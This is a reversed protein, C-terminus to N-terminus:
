DRFLPPHHFIQVRTGDPARCFFSRAGDRHTKLPEIIPVGQEQLYDHWRDVDEPSAILFGVHDLRQPRAAAPEASRYLALNDNGSTLFVTDDDPRWEVSMGMVGTYFEVCADFESVRMAVHRLGATGTPAGESM